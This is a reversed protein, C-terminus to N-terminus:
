CSGGVLTCVFYWCPVICGGDQAELFGVLACNNVPPSYVQGGVICPMVCDGQATCETGPDCVTNGNGCPEGCVGTVDCVLGAGCEPYVMHCQQSGDKPCPTDTTGNVIFVGGNPDCPDGVIAHHQATPKTPASCNSLLLVAGAVAVLLPWKLNAHTLHIANV